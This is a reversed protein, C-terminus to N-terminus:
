RRSNVAEIIWLIAARTGTTISLTCFTFCFLAVIPAWIVRILGGLGEVYAEDAYDAMWGVTGDYLQPTLLFAIVLGLLFATLSGITLARSEGKGKQNSNKFM